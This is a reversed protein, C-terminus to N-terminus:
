AEKKLNLTISSQSCYNELCSPNDADGPLLGKDAIESLVILAATLHKAISM